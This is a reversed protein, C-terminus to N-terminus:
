YPRTFVHRCNHHTLILNFAAWGLRHAKVDHYLNVASVACFGLSIARQVGASCGALPLALVGAILAVTLSRRM